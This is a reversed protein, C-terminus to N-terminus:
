YCQEPLKFHDGNVDPKYGNYYTMTSLSTKDDNSGHREYEYRVPEYSSAQRNYHVYWRSLIFSSASSSTVEQWIECLKGQFNAEGHYTFSDPVQLIPARSLSTVNCKNKSVDLRHQLSLKIILIM